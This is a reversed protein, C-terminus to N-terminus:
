RNTETSCGAAKIPTASESTYVSQTLYVVDKSHDLLSSLNAQTTAHM